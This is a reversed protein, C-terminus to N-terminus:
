RGIRTLIGANAPRLLMVVQEAPEAADPELGGSKGDLDLRRAADPSPPQQSGQRRLLRLPSRVMVQATSLRHHQAAATADALCSVSGPVAAHCFAGGM